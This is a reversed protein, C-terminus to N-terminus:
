YGTTLSECFDLLMKYRSLFVFTDEGVLLITHGNDKFYRIKCNQLAGSLRQAEDGSPLMNDKGHQVDDSISGDSFRLGNSGARALVLVEATIAHLRSNAYAAASKLLKLKWLLTSKPIIDALGTAHLADLGRAAALSALRVYWAQLGRTLEKARNPDGPPANLLRYLCPLLLWPGIKQNKMVCEDELMPGEIMKFEVQM